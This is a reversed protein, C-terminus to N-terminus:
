NQWSCPSSRATATASSSRPSAVEATQTSGGANSIKGKFEAEKCEAKFVQFGEWYGVWKLASKAKLVIETGAAYQNGASCPTENVKCLVSQGAAATGVGSMAMAAVALLCAAGLKKMYHM